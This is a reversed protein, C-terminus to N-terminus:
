ILKLWYESVIIDVIVFTFNRFETEFYITNYLIVCITDLIFNTGKNM